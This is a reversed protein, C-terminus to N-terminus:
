QRIVVLLWLSMCSFNLLTVLVCAYLNCLVTWCVPMQPCTHRSHVKCLIFIIVPAKKGCLKEDLKMSINNRNTTGGNNLYLLMRCTNTRIDRSSPRFVSYRPKAGVM